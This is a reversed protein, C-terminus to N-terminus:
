ITWPVITRGRQAYIPVLRRQLEVLQRVKQPFALAAQDARFEKKAYQEPSLPRMKVPTEM